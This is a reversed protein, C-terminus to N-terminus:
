RGGRILTLHAVPAYAALHGSEEAVYVWSREDVLLRDPILDCPLSTTASAGDTPRLVCVEATPVFLAGARLVPELLRPVDDNPRAFRGSWAPEGTTLEIAAVTGGPVNLVLRDDVVLTAAGELLGPDNVTFLRSGNADFRVLRSADGEAFAVIAGGEHGFVPGVRRTELEVRLTEEGRYADLGVLACSPRDVRFYARDRSTVLGSIQAGEEIHRYLEEGTVADLGHVADDSAVLLMRGFRVLELPRTARSSFRWVLEGTRLDIAALRGLGEELIAIPPTSPTGVLKAQPPRAFRATIRGTAYPEGDLVSCLEVFGDPFVRVLVGGAMSCVADNTDRAWLVSGDDRSLAVTHKSSAVVLRDGCLFTSTADLGDLAVRWREGFRLSPSGSRGAGRNEEPRQAPEDARMREADPNVFGTREERSKAHRRLLRVEERLSRIRLNRSQSRDFAVLERVIESAVKAIPLLADSAELSPATASAGREGELTMTVRGTGDSRLALSCTGVRARLSPAHRSSRAEAFSRSASLMRLLPLLIPGRALVIRRGHVFAWLTGDCLLAHVDARVARTQGRTAGRLTLEYGFALPTTRGPAELAGGRVSLVEDADIPEVTTARAREVVAHAISRHAASEDACEVLSADISAALLTELAVRRNWVLLEPQGTTTYLSVYVDAGRRELALEGPSASLALVVRRRVGAALQTLAAAVDTAPPLEAEVDRGLCLRAFSRDQRTVETKELSPRPLPLPRDLPLDMRTTPEHM